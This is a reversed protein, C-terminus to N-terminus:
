KGLHYSQGFGFYFLQYFHTFEVNFQGGTAQWGSANKTLRNILKVLLFTFRAM